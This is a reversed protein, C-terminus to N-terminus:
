TRIPVTVQTVLPTLVDFPRTSIVENYLGSNRPGTVTILLAIDLDPASDRQVLAGGERALYNLWLRPQYLTRGQMSDTQRIITEWKGEDRLEQETKLRAASRTAPTGSPTWGGALLEDYEDRNHRVDIPKAARSDGPPPNMNVKASNPRFFVEVGASTYELANTIDVPSLFSLTWRVAWRGELDRPPVPLPYAVAQGRELTDRYLVSIEDNTCELAGVLSQPILGFGHDDARHDTRAGAFHAAFARLTAADRDDAGLNVCLEAITRAVSPTSFSTGFDGITEGNPGAGFFPLTDDGGFAFVMPQVRSGHRGPGRCCYPARDWEAQDGLAAGVSLLNVGDAPVRVHDSGDGPRPDETGDNGAAVAILVDNELAIEDLTWTWRDVYDRSAPRNIGVGLSAVRYQGSRLVDAIQDLVWYAARGPTSEPPPHIRYHHVICPPSSIDVGPLVAGYLAASTSLTGHHLGEDTPEESTLDQKVVFGNLYPHQDDVGLDFIAIAFDDRTSELPVGELEPHESGDDLAAPEGVQLEAIPQLLRLPNFELLRNASRPELTIPIFTLGGAERAYDLEIEGGLRDVLEAWQHLLRQQQDDSVRGYRDVAPHLISEWEVASDPEDEPEVLRDPGPLGVAAFRIFEEQVRAFRRTPQTMEVIESLRELSEDRASVQLTRTVADETSGSRTRYEATGPRSGVVVLDSERLLDSPFYSGALYNPLMTMEIVVRDGRRDAPIERIRAATQMLQPQLTRRAEDLTVPHFKEAPGRPLEVEADRLREGGALLPRELEPM